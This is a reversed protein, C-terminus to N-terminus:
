SCSDNGSFREPQNTWGELGDKTKVKVWWHWEPAKEYYGWDDPNQHDPMVSIEQDVMEGARWVKYHGEGLDTYVRIVDGARYPPVDRRVVFKGAKTHVDGTRADVYSGVEVRGVTRAEASPAEYLDASQEARWTGYTCCEGPCAGRDVYYEPPEPTAASCGGVSVFVLLCFTVSVRQMKMHVEDGARSVASKM